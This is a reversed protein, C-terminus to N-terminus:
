SRGTEAVARLAAQLDGIGAGGSSSPKWRLCRRASACGRFGTTSTPSDPILGADRYIFSFRDLFWGLDKCNLKEKLGRLGVLSCSARNRRLVLVARGFSCTPLLATSSGRVLITSPFLM